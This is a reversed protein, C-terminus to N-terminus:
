KTYYIWSINKIENFSITESVVQVVVTGIYAELEDSLNNTHYSFISHNFDFTGINKILVNSCNFSFLDTLNAQTAKTLAEKATWLKYFYYSDYQKNNLLTLEDEVCFEQALEVFNRPKIKEIDIGLKLQQSSICVAAVSGSHTISISFSYKQNILLQTYNEIQYTKIQSSELHSNEEPEDEAKLTLSKQQLLQAAAQLLLVRSLLLQQRKLSSKMKDFRNKDEHNLLSISQNYQEIFWSDNVKAYLVFVSM